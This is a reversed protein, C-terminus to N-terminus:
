KLRPGGRDASNERWRVGNKIKTTVVRLCFPPKWEGLGWMTQRQFVRRSSVIGDRQYALNTCLSVLLIVAVIFMPVRYSKKRANPTELVQETRKRKRRNKKRKKERQSALHNLGEALYHTNIGGESSAPTAEGALSPLSFGNSHVSSANSM